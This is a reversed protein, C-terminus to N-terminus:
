GEIKKIINASGFYASMGFDHLLSDSREEGKRMKEYAIKKVVKARKLLEKAYEQDSPFGAYTRELYAFDRDLDTMMKDLLKCEPDSNPIPDPIPVLDPVTIVGAPTTMKLFRFKKLRLYQLACCALDILNKETKNDSCDEELVSDMEKTDIKCETQSLM